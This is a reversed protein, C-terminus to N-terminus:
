TCLPHYSVFENSYSVILHMRVVSSLTAFLGPTTPSFAYQFTSGHHCSVRLFRRLLAQKFPWLIVSIMPVQNPAETKPTVLHCQFYAGLVVKSSKVGSSSSFDPVCCIWQSTPQQEGFSAHYHLDTYRMCSTYPTSSTYTRLIYLSRSFNAHFCSFWWSIFRVDDELGENKQQM